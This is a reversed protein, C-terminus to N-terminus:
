MAVILLILGILFGIKIYLIRYKKENDISESLYKKIEQEANNIFNLQSDVNGNGISTLYNLFFEYEENKIYNIKEDTNNEKIYAYLKKNFDNDLDLSLVLENITKKSFAIENKLKNNFVQFRQYFIKRKNFKESLIYGLFTSIILLLFGIFLKM